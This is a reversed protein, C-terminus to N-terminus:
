KSHAALFFITERSQGSAKGKRLAGGNRSGRHSATKVMITAPSEKREHPPPEQRQPYIAHVRGERLNEGRCAGGLEDAKLGKAEM